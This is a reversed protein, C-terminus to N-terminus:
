VNSLKQILDELLADRHIHNVIRILPARDDTAYRLDYEPVPAHEIDSEMFRDDTNLLWAVATVDWIVRSWPRGAAYQEAAETTHQVLYSCLLNKGELWYELEPKSVHFIDVVGKCPLQIFPVGSLMVIRAAAIDQMMNFEAAGFKRAHGGLWVVVCNEAMRPNLLFASAVNTIAGIAIIYLPNEPSYADALRSLFDAADSNVPTKEDSLYTESGRYVIPNLDERGLLKLLHLIEQYSREMGDAPSTSNSNYFPAATLGVVHLRDESLLMYSLAFQDDIENYTDTDLVVDVRGEPVALNRYFLDERM